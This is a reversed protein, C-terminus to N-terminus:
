STGGLGGSDELGLAFSENRKEPVQSIVLEELDCGLRMVGDDV